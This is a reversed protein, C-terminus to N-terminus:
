LGGDKVPTGAPLAKDTFIIPRHLKGSSWAVTLRQYDGDEVVAGAPDGVLVVRRFGNKRM